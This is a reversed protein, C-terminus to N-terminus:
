RQVLSEHYMASFATNSTLDCFDCIFEDKEELHHARGNRQCAVHSWDKCEDCQIAGSVDQAKYFLNGNGSTGCRCNMGFLSDPLSVNSNAPPEPGEPEDESEPPSKSKKIVKPPKIITPASHGIYEKTPAKYPSAMWSRRKPDMLKLDPATCNVSISTSLDTSQLELPYKESLEKERLEIFKDQAKKGGRLYYVVKHISDGANVDSSLSDAAVRLPRGDYKMGDYTYIHKKNDVTNGSIYKATFHTAQQTLLGFGVLDYIIGHDQAAGDSLPTITSPFDWNDEGSPMEVALIVPISIVINTM